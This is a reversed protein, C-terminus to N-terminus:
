AYLNIQTCRGVPAFVPGGALIADHDTRAPVTAGACCPCCLARIASAAAQAHPFPPPHRAAPPLRIMAAERGPPRRAPPRGVPGAPRPCCLGNGRGPRGARRTLWVALAIAAIVVVVRAVQWAPSGDLGALVAFALGGSAVVASLVAPVTPKRAYRGGPRFRASLGTRRPEGKKPVAGAGAPERITGAAPLHGHARAPPFPPAEAGTARGALVSLPAGASPAPAPCPLASGPSPGPESVSRPNM